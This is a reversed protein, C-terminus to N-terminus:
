FRPYVLNFRECVIPMEGSPKYITGHLVRHYYAWHQSRWYELSRDGEGELRAYAQTIDDYPVVEVSTTRIICQAYGAWNTIIAYDGARPIPEDVLEFEWLSPSTARKKGALVLYAAEDAIQKNDGFRDVKYTLKTIDIDERLSYLFAHWLDIISEHM